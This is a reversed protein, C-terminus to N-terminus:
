RQVSHGVVLGGFFGVVGAEGITAVEVLDLLPVPIPLSNLFQQESSVTEGLGLTDELPEDGLPWPRPQRDPLSTPHQLLPRRRSTLGRM